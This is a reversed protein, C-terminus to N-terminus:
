AHNDAQMFQKWWMSELVGSKNATTEWPKPSSSYHIISPKITEWYSPVARTMSWALRQANFKFELRNSEPWRYWDAFFANLFGTDGGDYSTYINEEIGKKMRDFTAVDPRLVLVGANFRDPPILDPAAAFGYDGLDVHLLKEISGVVLCDADIYVIRDFQTQRWLELKSFGARNWGEVHAKFPNELGELEIIHVNLRRRLVYKTTRSIEPTVAVCIEVAPVKQELVSEVEFYAESSSQKGQPSSSLSSAVLSTLLSSSPSPSPSTTTTAQSLLDGGHVNRLSNCLATVGPLFSDDTLLTVLAVKENAQPRMLERVVVSSPM